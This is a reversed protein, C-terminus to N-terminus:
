KQITNLWESFETLFQDTSRAIFYKGRAREIDQRCILQDVSMRDKGAKVEVGVFYGRVCGVVDPIGNQGANKRYAGKAEDWIGTTNNRYAWARVENCIRKIVNRTIENATEPRLLRGHPAATAARRKPPAQWNPFRASM